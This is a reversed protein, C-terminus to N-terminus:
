SKEKAASLGYLREFDYFEKKSECFDLARRLTENEVRHAISQGWKEFNLVIDEGLKTNKFKEVAEKKFDIM